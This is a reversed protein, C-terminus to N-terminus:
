CRWAASRPWWCGAQRLARALGAMDRRAAARSLTPLCSRSRRLLVFLPVRALVFAFAFLGAQVPDDPMLATVVIPAINALVLSLGWAGVLWATATVLIRWPVRPGTDRVRVVALALVLSAVSGFGLALGYPVAASLGAVVFM